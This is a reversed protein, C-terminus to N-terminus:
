SRYDPGDHRNCHLRTLFREVYEYEIETEYLEICTGTGVDKKNMM